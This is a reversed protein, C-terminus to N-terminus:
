VFLFCSHCADNIVERDVAMVVDQYYFEEHWQHEILFLALTWAPKVSFEAGTGRVQRYFAAVVVVVVVAVKVVVVVVMVVVM